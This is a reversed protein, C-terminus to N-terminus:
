EKLFEKKPNVKVLFPFIIEYNFPGNDLLAPTNCVDLPSVKYPTEYGIM